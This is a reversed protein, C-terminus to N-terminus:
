MVFIILFAIAFGYIGTTEALAIGLIMNSRIVSAAEPNRGIADMAHAAINGEGIGSGFGTFVAIGAGIAALGKGVSM